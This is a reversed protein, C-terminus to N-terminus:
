LQQVVSCHTFDLTSKEEKELLNGNWHVPDELTNNLMNCMGACTFHLSM